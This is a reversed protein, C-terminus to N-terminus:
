DLFSFLRKKIPNKKPPAITVVKSQPIYDNIQVETNKQKRQWQEFFYRYSEEYIYPIIGIGGNAKSIDNKKIEYFYVLAKHMGSYSYDYQKKYTSIQRQIKQSIEDSKFLIKIYDYLKQLDEQEKLAEQQKRLICDKHAYRRESVQECSVKERDFKIKCYPCTVYKAM